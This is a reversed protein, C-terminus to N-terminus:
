CSIRCKVFLRNVAGRLGAYIKICQRYISNCSTRVEKLLSLSIITTHWVVSVPAPRWQSVCQPFEVKVICQVHDSGVRGKSSQACPGWKWCIQLLARRAQYSLSKEVSGEKSFACRSIQTRLHCVGGRTQRM